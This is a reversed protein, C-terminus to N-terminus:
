NDWRNDISIEIEDNSEDYVKLKLYKTNNIVWIYEKDAPIADFVFSFAELGETENQIYIDINEAFKGENWPSYFRMALSMKTKPM